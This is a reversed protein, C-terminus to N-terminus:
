SARGSVVCLTKPLVQEAAMIRGGVMLSAELSFRGDGNLDALVQTEATAFYLSRHPSPNRVELFMSRNGVNFAGSRYEAVGAETHKGNPELLLQYAVQRPSGTTSQIELV